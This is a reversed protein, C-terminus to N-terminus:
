GTSMGKAAQHNARPVGRGGWQWLRWEAGLEQLGARPLGREAALWACLAACQLLCQICIPQQAAQHGACLPSWRYERGTPFFLFHLDDALDVFGKRALWLYLYDICWVGSTLEKHAPRSIFLLFGLTSGQCTVKRSKQITKDSRLKYCQRWSVIIFIYLYFM